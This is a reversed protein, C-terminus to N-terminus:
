KNWEYLINGCDWIRDYGNNKMNEWESLNQDFIPLKKYLQDKRFSFRHWIKNGGDIFYWYNPSSDSKKMFKIKEYLNGISYRKDAYTTIKIPNYTKIFYNLLKSAIGVIKTNTAFRLLEYEDKISSKKGLSIRRKGFTM